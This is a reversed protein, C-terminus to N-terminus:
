LALYRQMLFDHIRGALALCALTAVLLAAQLGILAGYSRRGEPRVKHSQTVLGFGVAANLMATFFATPLIGLKPYFLFAFALAGAFAGLYDVGLVSNESDGADLNRVEILLPIEFGTLVGVALILGHALLSFVLGSGVVWSAGHLFLVSFGGTLSLLTEVRLLTLVPDRVWRGEAFIAGIGMSVMYLGITVCYRLVTNGLFASLSQGLLLEYVISCFALVFTFLYIM